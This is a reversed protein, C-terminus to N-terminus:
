RGFSPKQLKCLGELKLKQWRKTMTQNTMVETLFAETPKVSVDLSLIDADNGLAKLLRQALGPRENIAAVDINFGQSVEFFRNFEDPDTFEAELETKADDGMKLWKAAQTVRVSGDFHQKNGDDDDFDFSGALRVSKVVAGKRMSQDSLFDRGCDILVEEADAKLAKGRKELDDGELWNKIQRAEAAELRTQPMTSKKAATKKGMPKSAAATLAALANPGSSKTRSKAM